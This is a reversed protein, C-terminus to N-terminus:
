FVAHNSLYDYIKYLCGRDWQIQVVPHHNLLRILYVLIWVAALGCLWIQYKNKGTKEYRFLFYLGAPVSWFMPHYILAQRINLGAASIYARSIGCGPCPIGTIWRFICGGGLCVWAGYVACAALVWLCKTYRKIHDLPRHRM